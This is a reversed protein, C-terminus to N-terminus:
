GKQWSRARASARAHPRRCRRRPAPPPSWRAGAAPLSPPQGPRPSTPGSAGRRHTSGPAPNSGKADTSQAVTGQVASSGTQAAGQAAGMCMSTCRGAGGREAWSQQGARSGRGRGCASQLVPRDLAAAAHMVVIALAHDHTVAAPANSRQQEMRQKSTEQSGPPRAAPQQASGALQQRAKVATSSSEQLGQVLGRQGQACCRETRRARGDALRRM